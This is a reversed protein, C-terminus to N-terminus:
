ERLAEHRTFHYKIKYIVRHDLPIVTALYTFLSSHLPFGSQRVILAATLNRVTGLLFCFKVCVRQEKNDSMMFIALGGLLCKSFLWLLLLVWGLSVGRQLSSSYQTSERCRLACRAVVELERAVNLNRNNKPGGKNMYIYIYIYIYTYIYIHTHTHRRQFNQCTLSFIGEVSSTLTLFDV